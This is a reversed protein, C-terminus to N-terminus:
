TIFIKEAVRKISVAFFIIFFVVVIKIKLQIVGSCTIKAKFFQM